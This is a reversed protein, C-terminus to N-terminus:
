RRKWGRGEKGKGEEGDWGNRGEEERGMDGMGGRKRGGWTVWGKRGGLGM